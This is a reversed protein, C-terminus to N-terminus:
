GSYGSALDANGFRWAAFAHIAVSCYACSLASIMLRFYWYYATTVAHTFPEAAIGEFFGMLLRGGQGLARAIEGLVSTFDDPHIHILSYSALVGALIGDPVGLSRLSAVRFSVDPCRARATIGPVPVCWALERM